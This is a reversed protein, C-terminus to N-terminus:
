CCNRNLVCLYITKAVVMIELKAVVVLWKTVIPKAIAMLSAYDSNM